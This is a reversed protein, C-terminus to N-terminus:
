FTQRSVGAYELRTARLMVRGPKVVIGPRIREVYGFIINGDLTMDTQMFDDIQEALAEDEKRTIQSSQIKEHYIILHTRLILSFRHTSGKGGLERDMDTSEAIFSPFAPILDQDGYFSTRFTDPVFQNTLLDLIYQTQETPKTFAM